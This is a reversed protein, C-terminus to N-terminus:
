LVVVENNNQLSRMAAFSAELTKVADSYNNRLLSTDKTELAQIFAKDELEFCIRNPGFEEAHHGTEDCFALKGDFISLNLIIGDCIIDIHHFGGKAPSYITSCLNGVIGNHFLINVSSSDEVDYDSRDRKAGYNGFAQVKAIDGFLYRLLDLTHTSQEVLQGGGLDRKRWWYVGPMQTSWCARVLIVKRGKLLEKVRDIMPLYRNLYGSAAVIHNKVILSDINKVASLNLGLPKEVFLNIGKAALYEEQGNHAFPPVCVYVADLKEKEVMEKYDAYANAGFPAAARQAGDIHPNCFAAIKVGGIKQLADLHSRTVSGNGIFGIKVM